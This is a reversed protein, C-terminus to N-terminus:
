PIHRWPPEDFPEPGSRYQMRRETDTEGVVVLRPVPDFEVLPLAPELAPNALIRAEIQFGNAPTLKVGFPLVAQLRERARAGDAGRRVLIGDQARTTRATDVTLGEIPDIPLEVVERGLLVEEVTRFADDLDFFDLAVILPVKYTGLKKDIAARVAEHADGFVVSSRWGGYARAPESRAAHTDFGVFVGGRHFNHAGPSFGAGALKQAM